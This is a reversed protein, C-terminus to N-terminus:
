QISDTTPGDLVLLSPRQALALLLAAKVRQGHSLGKLKQEPKLDFRKCLHQAYADSWGKCISRFIGYALRAHCGRLLVYGRVRGIDVKAPVQQAPM